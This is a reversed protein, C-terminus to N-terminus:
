IREFIGLEEAIKFMEEMHKLTSDLTPTSSMKYWPWPSAPVLCLEEMCCELSTIGGDYGFDKETMGTSMGPLVRLGRVLVAEKLQCLVVPPLM